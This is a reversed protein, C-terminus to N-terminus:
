LHNNIKTLSYIDITFDVGVLRYKMKSVLDTETESVYEHLWARNLMISNTAKLGLILPLRKWGALSNKGMSPHASMNLKPHCEIDYPGLSWGNLKSVEYCDYHM